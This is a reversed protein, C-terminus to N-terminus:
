SVLRRIREQDQESIDIIYFGAWFQGENNGQKCWLCEVGIEIPDGDDEKNCLALSLQFISNESVPESTLIMLGEESINVLRGFDRNAQRNDSVCVVGPVDVRVKKRMESPANKHVTM